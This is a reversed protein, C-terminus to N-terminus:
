VGALSVIGNYIGMSLNVMVIDTNIWYQSKGHHNGMAAKGVGMCIHFM